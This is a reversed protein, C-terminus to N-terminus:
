KKEKEGGSSAKPPTEAETEGAEEEEKKGKKIVEPEGSEEAPAEEPEEEAHPPSVSVVVQEPEDLVTVNRPLELDKVHIADGIRLKEVHVNVHEPIETPLCEVELEWIIQTLVGEDEEVGIATGKVTVPVKVKLKEKMSIEHFDIHVYSEDLPNLQVEQVIVIKKINKDGGEIDMTIIANEGAATHLARWLAKSEVQISLGIKGGKYVVAPVKGERRLQKCSGKGLNARQAANLIVKEM